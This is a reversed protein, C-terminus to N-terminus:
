SYEGVLALPVAPLSPVDSAACVVPLRHVADGRLGARRGSHRYLLGAVNSLVVFTLPESAQEVFGAVL